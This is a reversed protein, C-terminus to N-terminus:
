PKPCSGGRLPRFLYFARCFPWGPCERGEGHRNIPPYVLLQLSGNDRGEGGQVGGLGSSM